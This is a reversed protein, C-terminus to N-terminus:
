KGYKKTGGLQGAENLRKQEKEKRLGEKYLRYNKVRHSTVVDVSRTNAKKLAKARAEADQKAVMDQYEKSLLEKDYRINIQGTADMLYISDGQEFISLQKNQIWPNAKQIQTVAQTLIDKGQKWSDPDDTVRLLNKPIVGVTDGDADNSTFVTANQRLYSRVQQIALDTNGTRSQVSEFVLRAENDMSVPIRALDPYKSNNHLDQWARDKEYQMEKSTTRKARDNDLLIQMDVGRRDILDLTNFLEASDPYLAALLDPDKNFIRRLSSLATGGNEPLKGNIVAATWEGNAEEVLQKMNTRFAGNQSDAKLYKLKLEDKQDETIDLADIDALKKNAYNVMDSHSFEGTNENTPMDNYATSVYQGNLRKNFQNEIVEMKNITKQQEDMQRAIDGTERKINNLVQAKASILMQKEPTMQDGPQYKELENQLIALQEWQTNTSEQNLASQLQLNFNETRQANLKFENHQAKILLNDWQESGMLDRFTTNSGYLSVRKDGIQQLFYSGGEKNVVDALSQSIISFAQEDSPISGNNRGNKIYSEFFAGVHPSRLSVPDNLVSSLEARSNILIGKKTRDSIYNDHQGYLSINRDTIDANFGKQYSADNENVGFTEAMQKSVEQLRKHRVEDLKARTDFEGNQIRQSIENDVQYAANRGTKFNLAEMVYPDDQFLLTGNALAEKRQEPTMERIIKNSREDALAKRNNDYDQYANAGIEALRGVTGILESKRSYRPNEYITAAKYETKGTSHLKSTQPATFSNLAQLLKSM